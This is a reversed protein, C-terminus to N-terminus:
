RNGGHATTKYPLSNPLAATFIVASGNNNYKLVLLGHCLRWTCYWSSTYWCFPIKNESAAKLLLTFYTFKKGSCVFPPVSHMGALKDSKQFQNNNYYM